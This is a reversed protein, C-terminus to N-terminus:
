LLVTRSRRPSVVWGAKANGGSVPPAFKSLLASTSAVLGSSNSFSSAEASASALVATVAPLAERALSIVHSAVFTPSAGQAVVTSVAKARLAQRRGAVLASSARSTANTGSARALPSPKSTPIASATLATSSDGL